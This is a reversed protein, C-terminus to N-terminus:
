KQLYTTDTIYIITDKNSKTKGLTPSTKIVQKYEIPKITQGKRKVGDIGIGFLIIGVALIFIGCLIIGIEDYDPLIIFVFGFVIFIVGLIIFIIFLAM